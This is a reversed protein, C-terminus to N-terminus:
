KAAAHGRVVGAISSEDTLALGRYGLESAREVLEDPHSAGTLFSFNSKCHLEVYQM